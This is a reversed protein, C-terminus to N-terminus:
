PFQDLAAVDFGAAETALDAGLWEQSLAALAGDDHMAQLSETAKQALSVPDRSSKQDVAAAAFAFYLPTALKRLPRGADIAAQGAAVQTVIADVNVGDGAALADIAAVDDAFGVIQPDQIRFVIEAGPLELTGNLYQEFACGDCAGIRKGSLDEPNQDTTNDAHVFAHVPTAFYPQTFYLAEMREYTITVSGVSIDWADDWDGAVVDGFAPSVFCPEVGLREALEVATLADFGEMETSTAQDAACRSGARRAAGDIRRSFPPYNFDTAVVLTGRAEIDALLDDGAPPDRPPDGPVCGAAALLVISLNCLHAVFNNRM